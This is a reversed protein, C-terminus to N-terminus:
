QKEEEVKYGFPVKGEVISKWHQIVDPHAFTTEKLLKNAEEQLAKWTKYSIVKDSKYEYQPYLLDGFNIIKMGFENNSTITYEKIMEWGIFDAQFGTIGGVKSRDIYNCTAIMSGCIAYVIKGYDLNDSNVVEDLLDMLDKKNKVKNAKKYIYEKYEEENM